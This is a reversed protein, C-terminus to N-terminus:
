SRTPTLPLWVTFDTKYPRPEDQSDNVPCSQVSITGGHKEIISKALALGQGSGTRSEAWRLKGKYGEEFIRVYEDEQIGIGYNSITIKYGQEAHLGRLLVFRKGYFASGYSYKVANHVLNNFAHQLHLASVKLRVPQHEPRLEEKFGINKQQALPHCLSIAQTVLDRIDHSEFRYVEPLYRGQMVNQLVMGMTEVTGMLNQASNLLFPQIDNVEQLDDLIGEAEALIAQLQIQIEHIARQLLREEQERHKISEYIIREIIPPVTHRLWERDAKKRVLNQDLLRQLINEAQEKSAGVKMMAQRHRSLRYEINTEEAERYAGFQLVAMTKGNIRIPHSETTLGAHCVFPKWQEDRFGEGARKTMNHRCVAEGDNIEWIAHCHPPFMKKDSSAICVVNGDADKEYVAIPINAMEAFLELLGRLLDREKPTLM